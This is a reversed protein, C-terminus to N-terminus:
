KFIHAPKGTARQKDIVWRPANVIIAEKAVAWVPLDARANGAYVFGEEGYLGVLKRAKVYSKLNVTGDSALVCDFIGLYNSIALAIKQDAATALIIKRGKLHEQKLFNLFTKHYPLLAPDLNVSEALRKKLYARAKLWWILMAIIKFPHQKLFLIFTEYFVDTKILTGDLDVALPLIKVNM